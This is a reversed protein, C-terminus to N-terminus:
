YKNFIELITKNEPCYDSNIQIINSNQMLFEFRAIKETEVMLILINRDIKEFNKKERHFDNKVKIVVFERLKGLYHNYFEKMKSPIENDNNNKIELLIMKMSNPSSTAPDSFTSILFKLQEYKEKIIASDSKEGEKKRQFLYSLFSLIVFIEFAYDFKTFYNTENLCTWFLSYFSQLATSIKEFNISNIEIPSEQVKLSIKKSMTQYETIKDLLEKADGRKEPSLNLMKRLLDQSFKSIGQSDLDKEVFKKMKDILDGKANIEWPGKGTLMEYYIVGASWIDSNFGYKGQLLVEPASYYDSGAFDLVMEKKLSVCDAFDIIALEPNNENPNLLLNAPKLDRHVISNEKQIFRLGKLICKLFRLSEEEQLFKSKLLYLELNTPYYKLYLILNDNEEEYNYLSIINSHNQLKYLFEQEHRVRKLTEPSNSYHSVKAALLQVSKNPDKEDTQKYAQYVESTKGKGLLKSNDYWYKQM